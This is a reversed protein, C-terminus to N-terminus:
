RPSNTPRERSNGKECCIQYIHEIVTSRTLQATNCIDTSVMENLQKSVCMSSPMPIWDILDDRNPFMETTVKIWDALLKASENFSAIIARSQNEATSDEAIISGSLFISRLAGDSGLLGVVVNVLSIQRHSTEDTHLQTWKPSKSIRYAALTKAVRLVVTRMNRITKLCPLERVVDHGPILSRAMVLICAQISTPPCQNALLEMVLKDVEITWEMHGGRKDQNKVWRKGITMTPTMEKITNQLTTNIISYEQLQEEMVEMDRLRDVLEDQNDAIQSCKSRWENMCILRQLSLIDYSRISKCADRARQRTDLIEDYLSNQLQRGNVMRIRLKQKEALLNSFHQSHISCIKCRHTTMLDILADKHSRKMQELTADLTAVKEELNSITAISTANDREYQKIIVRLKAAQTANDSKYGKIIVRSKAAQKQLIASSMKDKRKLASRLMHKMGNITSDCERQHLLLEKALRKRTIAAKAKAKTSVFVREVIIKHQAEAVSKDCLEKADAIECESVHLRKEAEARIANVESTAKQHALNSEKRRDQALKALITCQAKAATLKKSTTVAKKKACVLKKKTCHLSWHRQKENMRKVPIFIPSTDLDAAPRERAVLPTPDVQRCSKRNGGRRAGKGFKHKRKPM